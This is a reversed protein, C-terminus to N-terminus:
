ITPFLWGAAIGILVCAMAVLAARKPHFLLVYDGRPLLFLPKSGQRVREHFLPKAGAESTGGL